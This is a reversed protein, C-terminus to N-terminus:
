GWYSRRGMAASDATRSWGGEGIPRDIGSVRQAWFCVSVYLPLAFAVAIRIPAHIVHTSLHLLQDLLPLRCQPRSDAKLPILIHLHPITLVLTDIIDVKDINIVVIVCLWPTSVRHHLARGAATQPQKETIGAVLVARSYMVFLIRQNDDTGPGKM